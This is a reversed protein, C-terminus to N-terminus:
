KEGDSTEEYVKEICRIIREIVSDLTESSFSSSIRLCTHKSRHKLEVYVQPASM